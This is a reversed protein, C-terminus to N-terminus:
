AIGRQIAVGQAGSVMADALDAEILGGLAYVPIPTATVLSQFKEWGLPKADPHSATAKVPSLVVFDFQLRAAHEIDERCHASAAVIEIDPRVGCRHLEASPYHVGNAGVELALDLDNSILVRAAHPRALKVVKEAFQHREVVSMNKERVQVLKLGRAFAAGLRALYAAAGMEVANSIAYIPPLALAKFIPACGPLTPSVTLAELSQWAFQQQEMGRMEGTWARVRWCHLRVTAHTYHMIFSFWPTAHAITVNLEEILERTLAGLVTEGPEIKGGPFEWFGAYPKGEPRSSLLFGGDPKVFVAVAVETVVRNM